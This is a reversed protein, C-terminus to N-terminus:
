IIDMVIGIILIMDQGIETIKGMGQDVETHTMQGLGTRFDERNRSIGQRDEVEIPSAYENNLSDIRDKM